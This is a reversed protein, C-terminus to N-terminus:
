APAAFMADVPECVLLWRERPEFPAHSRRERCMPLQVAVTASEGGCAAWESCGEDTLTRRLNWRGHLSLGTTAASWHPMCWGLRPFRQHLSRLQKTRERLSPPTPRAPAGDGSLLPRRSQPAPDRLVEPAPVLQRGRLQPTALPKRAAPTSQSRQLPSRAGHAPRTQWPPRLEDLSPDHPIGAEPSCGTRLVGRAAHASPLHLQASQNTGRRQPPFARLPLRAPLGAGLAEQRM